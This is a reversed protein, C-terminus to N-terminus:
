KLIIPRVQVRRLQSWREEMTPAAAEGREVSPGREGPPYPPRGDEGRGGYYPEPGYGAGQPPFTQQLRESGQPAFGFGGTDM